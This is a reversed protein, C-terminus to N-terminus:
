FLDFSKSLVFVLYQFLNVLVILCSTAFCLDVAGAWLLEINPKQITKKAKIYHDNKEAWWLMKVLHQRCARHQVEQRNEDTETETVNSERSRMGILWDFQPASNVVKM